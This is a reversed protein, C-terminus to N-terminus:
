ISEESYSILNFEKGYKDIVKFIMRPGLKKKTEYHLTLIDDSIKYTFAQIGINNILENMFREREEKDSSVKIIAECQRSTKPKDNDYYMQLNNNIENFKENVIEVIKQNSKGEDEPQSHFIEQIESILKEQTPKTIVNPDLNDIKGDMSDVKSEIKILANTITSTVRQNDSDQKLAIFIAVLALAISVASSIISFNLEIADSNYCGAILLIILGVLIGVLWIWDRNRWGNNNNM